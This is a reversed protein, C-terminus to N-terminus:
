NAFFQIGIEIANKKIIAKSHELLKAEFHPSFSVPKAFESLTSYFLSNNKYNPQSNRLILYYFNKWEYLAINKALKNWDIKHLTKVSNCFECFTDFHDFRYIAHQKLPHFSKRKAILKKKPCDTELVYKTITFVLIDDLSSFTEILIKCGDTHFNVEKEAKKLIKSFFDQTEMAKTMM